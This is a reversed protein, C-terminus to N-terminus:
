QLADAAAGPVLQDLVVGAAPLAAPALRQRLGGLLESPPEGVAPVGPHEDTDEDELFARWRGAAARQGRSPGAAALFSGEHTGLGGGPGDRALVDRRDEIM